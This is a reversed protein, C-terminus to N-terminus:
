IRMPVAVQRNLIRYMFALRQIRRRIQLPELKFQELLSTVSTTRSYSSLVWRAASRLIKELKDLNTNTHPDWIISAYEM